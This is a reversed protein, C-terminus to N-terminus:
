FTTRLYTCAYMCVNSGEGSQKKKGAKKQMAADGKGSKGAKQKGKAKSTKM